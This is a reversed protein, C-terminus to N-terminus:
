PFVILSADTIYAGSGAQQAWATIGYSHGPTLTIQNSRVIVFSLSSTSIQSASVQASTTIDYLAVYLTSATGSCMLGAELAFKQTAPWNSSLKILPQAGSGSNLSTSGKVAFYVNQGVGLTAVTSSSGSYWWLPIYMEPASSAGKVLSTQAVDAYANPLAM